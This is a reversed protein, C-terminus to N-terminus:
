ERVHEGSTTASHRQRYVDASLCDPEGEKRVEFMLKLGILFVVDYHGVLRFANGGSAGVLRVEGLVSLGVLPVAKGLMKLGSLMSVENSRLNM